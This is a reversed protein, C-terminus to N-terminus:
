LSSSQAACRSIPKTPRVGRQAIACLNGACSCVVVTSSMVDVDAAGARRRRRRLERRHEDAADGDGVRRQVVGVLDRAEVHADAVGHDHAAGAVHNRFDHADHELSRGRPVFGHVIGACQGIQPESM